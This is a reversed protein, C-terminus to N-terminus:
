PRDLCDLLHVCREVQRKSLDVLPDFSAPKTAKFVVVIHQKAENIGVYSGIDWLRKETFEVITQAKELGKCMKPFKADKHKNPDCVHTFAATDTLRECYPSM